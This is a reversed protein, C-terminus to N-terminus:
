YNGTMATWTNLKATLETNQEELKQIRIEYWDCERRHDHRLRKLGAELTHERDSKSQNLQEKLRRQEEIAIELNDEANYVQRNAEEIKEDAEDYIRQVASVLQQVIPDDVFSAHHLLERDSLRINKAWDFIM